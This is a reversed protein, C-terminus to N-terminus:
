RGIARLWEAVIDPRLESMHVADAVKRVREQIGLVRLSINEEGQAKAWRFTSRRGRSRFRFLAAFDKMSRQSPSATVPLRM